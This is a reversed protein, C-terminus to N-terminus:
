RAAARCVNRMRGVGAVETELVDGDALHRPPKRAIGVGSPTGTLIVDGPRLTLVSSLLSVLEPVSFILQDTCSDQVLEGNVRCRIPLADRDEIVTAAVLVPGLPCFSDRSKGLSFQVGPRLQLERDSVDQAAMVGAVHDWGDAVAVDRGERGIVVAVEAEWDAQEVGAPLVVDDCPGAVSAPFKAFVTPFDPADLGAEEAHDRYNLGIGFISGPRPVPSGLAVGAAPRGGDYSGAAAFAVAEEWQTSVLQTPDASLAGGSASSLDFLEDGVLVASRGDANCFRM